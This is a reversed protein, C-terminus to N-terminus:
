KHLTVQVFILQAKLAHIVHVPFSSKMQSKIIRMQINAIAFSSKWQKYHLARMEIDYEIWTCDKQTMEPHICEINYMRSM